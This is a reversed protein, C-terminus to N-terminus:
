ASGKQSRKSRAIWFIVAAPLFMIVAAAVVETHGWQM